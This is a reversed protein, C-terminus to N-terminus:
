KKLMVWEIEYKMRVDHIEFDDVTKTLVRSPHMLKPSHFEYKLDNFQLTFVRYGKPAMMSVVGLKGPDAALLFPERIDARFAIGTEVFNVIAANNISLSSNGRRAALSITVIGAVVLAVAVVAVLVKATKDM